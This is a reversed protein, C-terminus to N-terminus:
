EDRFVTPRALFAALEPQPREDRELLAVFADWRDDPLVFHTRDALVNQAAATAHSLVFASTSMSSAQAAEDLLRREAPRLRLELRDAKRAPRALTM